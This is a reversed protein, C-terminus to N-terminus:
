CINLQKEKIMLPKCKINNLYCELNSGSCFSGVVCSIADFEFMCHRMAMSTCPWTLRWESCFQVKDLLLTEVLVSDFSFVCNRKLIEMIILKVIIFGFSKIFIYMYLSHPNDNSEDSMCPRHGTWTYSSSRGHCSCLLLDPSKINTAVFSTPTAPHTLCVCSGGWSIM